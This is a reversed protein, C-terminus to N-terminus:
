LVIHQLEPQTVKLKPWVHSRQGVLRDVQGRRGYHILTKKKFFISLRSNASIRDRVSGSPLGFIM